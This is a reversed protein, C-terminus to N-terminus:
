AGVLFGPYSDRIIARYWREYDRMMRPFNFREVVRRRAEKGMAAAQEPNDILSVLAAAIAASDRAPVLLGTEQHDVQEPAAAVDTAILPRELAMSEIIVSCFAEHLTPHVVYDAAEMVEWADARWGLFSVHPMIGLQVALAELRGRLPGVGLLLFHAAPHRQVVTAIAAFLYEHGKEVSLRAVSAVLIKDDGGLRDRVARRSDPTLRPRLAAFDYGYPTVVIRREPVREYRVMAKKVARSAALVRDACIAHCRDIFRHVPRQFLTTFDSHHRTVVRAPTQALTAALLGVTTPHFLHTQILDVRERRLIKALRWVAVPLAGYTPADLAFAPVDRQSLAEHLGSRPGISAVMHRFQNRDYTAAVGNLWANPGALDVVHLINIM